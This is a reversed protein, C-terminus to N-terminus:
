YGGAVLHSAASALDDAVAEVEDRVAGVTVRVYDGGARQRMGNAADTADSAALFPTGAAVRIGAAALQVLASREGLVPMWLNIGDAPAVAVGRERLADGLSRQRTYYARRAETVADISAGDVLLDLLITQLMRSTWGPGLMRRGAIHEILDRPGGLAAIRLDPGHSKSFSRVHVVRDPLWTGLTVDAEISILGSHDDEIVILDDVREAAEITRALAEARAPTMSAGTPNQARPQLLVAVPRRRLAAALSDPRMGHGDLRVPVAVAGLVELLDLFPPFGPSEVAVRDGFRVLQELTRSIADLAGDVVMIQEADSPWSDRLVRALAPIVPESQYSGTEARVSVRSLAPGLAPLLMPDPTGRSLDLRVPDEPAAMGRMRPALRASAAGRVFSGARGRAEILGARALAQWAQSITAPSVGLAAALDRVTPLRQGPGLEGANVLRAVESAITRPSADAFGALAILQAADVREGSM